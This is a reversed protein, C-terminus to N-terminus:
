PRRCRAPCRLETGSSKVFTLPVSNKVVLVPKYKRAGTTIGAIEVLVGMDIGGIETGGHLREGIGAGVFALETNGVSKDM